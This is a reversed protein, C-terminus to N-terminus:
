NKKYFLIVMNSVISDKIDDVKIDIINSGEYMKYVNNLNDYFVSYYENKIKNNKCIVAHFVWLKGEYTINKPIDILSTNNLDFALIYPTNLLKPMFYFNGSLNLNFYFNTINSNIKISYVTEYESKKFNAIFDKRTLIQPGNLVEMLGDYDKIELKNLLFELELKVENNNKIFEKILEELYIIKPDLDKNLLLRMNTNPYFLCIIINLIYSM